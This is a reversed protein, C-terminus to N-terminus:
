IQKDKNSIWTQLIRTITEIDESNFSQHEQLLYTTLYGKNVVAIGKVPQRVTVFARTFCLIPKVNWEKSTKKKLFDRLQYTQSWTQNLFNKPPQTGNLLLTDGTADVTGSHSKTEVLFIGGPGVVVHDINFGDFTIDNFVNYGDPLNRLKEAVM